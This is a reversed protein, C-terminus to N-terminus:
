IGCVPSPVHCNYHKACTVYYHFIISLVSFNCALFGSTKLRVAVTLSSIPFCDQTHLWCKKKMVEQMCLVFCLNVINMFHLFFNKM